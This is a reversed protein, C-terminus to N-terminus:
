TVEKVTYYTDGHYARAVHDKWEDLVDEYNLTHNDADLGFTAGCACTGGTRYVRGWGGWGGGAIRARTRLCHEDRFEAPVPKRRILTVRPM